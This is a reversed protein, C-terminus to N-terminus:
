WSFSSLLMWGPQSVEKYRLKDNAPLPKNVELGDGLVKVGTRAVYGLGINWSSTDAASEKFKFGLM